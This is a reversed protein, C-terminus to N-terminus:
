TKFHDPNEDLGLPNKEDAESCMEQTKFHDATFLLISPMPLLLEYRIIFKERGSDSDMRVAIYCMGHTKLHDPIDQLMYPNKQLLATCMKRIIYWFVNKFSEIIKNSGGGGGGGQALPHHHDWRVFKCLSFLEKTDVVFM